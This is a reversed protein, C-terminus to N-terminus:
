RPPVQVSGSLRRNWPEMPRVMVETLRLQYMVSMKGSFVTVATPMMTHLATIRMANAALKMKLGSTSM